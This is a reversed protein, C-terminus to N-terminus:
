EEWIERPCTPCRYHWDTSLDTRDEPLHLREMVESVVAKDRLICRDAMLTFRDTDGHFVVRGRPNFEYPAHPVKGSLVLEGWMETHARAHTLAEGYPEAEALSSGEIFLKGGVLYFIGVRPATAKTISSDSKKKKM